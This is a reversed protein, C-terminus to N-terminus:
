GRYYHFARYQSYSVLRLSYDSFGVVTTSVPEMSCLPWIIFRITVSRGFLLSTWNCKRLFSIFFTVGASSSPLLIPILICPITIVSWLRLVEVVHRFAYTVLWFSSRLSVWQCGLFHWSSLLWFGSYIAPPGQPGVFKNQVISLLM